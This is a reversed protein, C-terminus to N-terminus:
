RLGGETRWTFHDALPRIRQAIYPKAFSEVAAEGAVLSNWAPHGGMPNAYYELSQLSGTGRWHPVDAEWRLRVSSYTEEVEVEGAEMGLSVRSKRGPKIQIAIPQQLYHGLPILSGRAMGTSSPVREVMARLWQRAIAQICERMVKNLDDQFASMELTFKPPKSTLHFM